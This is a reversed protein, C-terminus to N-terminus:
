ESGGLKVSTRENEGSGKFKRRMAMDDLSALPPALFRSICNLLCRLARKFAERLGDGEVAVAPYETCRHAAMPHGIRVACSKGAANHRATFIFDFSPAGSKSAKDRSKSRFRDTDRGPGNLVSLAMAHGRDKPQGGAGWARFRGVGPKNMLAESFILPGSDRTRLFLMNGTKGPEITESM